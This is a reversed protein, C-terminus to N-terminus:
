PSTAAIPRLPQKKCEQYALIRLNRQPQDAIIAAFAGATILPLLIQQPYERNAKAWCPDSLPAPDPELGCAALMVLCVLSARKM